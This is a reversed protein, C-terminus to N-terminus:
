RDPERRPRLSRILRSLITAADGVIGLDAVDFIPAGPDKNVAVIHRSGKIGVLHQPAGSIGFALYLEPAVTRGTQGVQWAFPVWGADVAARSAAPAGGLLEALEAIPEFADASGLGRGGAVVVDARDLVPGTRPEAHRAVVRAGDGAPARVATMPPAGAAGAALPRPEVSRSRVTVIWPAPGRFATRVRTTGGFVTTEVVGADDLAVANAIVPRDLRASLRGAVDRGDYTTPLLVLDAGAVHGAVAAAVPQGPLRDGIGEVWVVEAAGHRGLETADFAVEEAPGFVVVREAVARAATVLDLHPGYVWVERM